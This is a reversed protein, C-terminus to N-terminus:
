LVLASVYSIWEDLVVCVFLLMGFEHSDCRVDAISPAVVDYMSQSCLMMCVASGKVIRLHVGGTTGGLQMESNQYLDLNSAEVNTCM